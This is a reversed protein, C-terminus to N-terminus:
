QGKDRRRDGGPRRGYDPTSYEMDSTGPVPPNTRTANFVSTNVAEELAIKRPFHPPQTTFTPRNESLLAPM